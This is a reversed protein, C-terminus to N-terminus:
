NLYVEEIFYHEGADDHTGIVFVLQPRTKGINIEEVQILGEDVLQKIFSRVTITSTAPYGFDEALERISFSTALRGILYYNEYIKRLVGTNPERVVKAKLYEYFIQKSRQATRYEQSNLLRKHVDEAKSARLLNGTFRFEQNM